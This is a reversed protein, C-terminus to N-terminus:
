DWATEVHTISDIRPSRYKGETTVTVSWTVEFVSEGDAVKTRTLPNSLALWSLPAPPISISMVSEKITKTPPVIPKDGLSISGTIIPQTEVGLKGLPIGTPQHPYQPGIILREDFAEAKVTIRNAWFVRQREKKVFKPPSIYWTGNERSSAGDPIAKLQEDFRQLIEDKIKERKYLCNDDSQKFFYTTARQIHTNVFDETVKSVLTNILGQLDELSKLILVNGTDKIHPSVAEGLLADESVLVVRCTTAAKPSNAVLQLFSEIILADRFGKEEGENTFPPYRYCADLILRPWDVKDPALKIITLGLEELQAEVTEEVRKKLISETINLNHGLVRELKRINPLLQLAKSQMQYQREHRVVDPVYWKIDLERHKKHGEIMDRVQQKVLDSEHGTYLINTDFVVRLEKPKPKGTMKNASM